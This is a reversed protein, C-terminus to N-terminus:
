VAGVASLYTKVSRRGECEPLKFTLVRSTRGEARAVWARLAEVVEPKCAGERALGVLVDSLATNSTRPARFEIYFAATDGADILGVDLDFHVRDAYPQYKDLASEFQDLDGRWRIAGLFVRLPGRPVSVVLRLGSRRATDRHGLVGMHNICGGPPLAEFCERARAHWEDRHEGLALMTATAIRYSRWAEVPRDAREALIAHIGRRVLPDIAPGIWPTRDSDDLDVELELFPLDALEDQTAWARLFGRIYAPLHPRDRLIDRDRPYLRTVLDVRGGGSALHCELAIEAATGDVHSAARRLRTRTPEAVLAPGCEDLLADLRARAGTM